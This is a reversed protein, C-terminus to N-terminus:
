GQGSGDAEPSQGKGSRGLDGRVNRMMHDREASSLQAQGAIKSANRDEEMRAQILGKAQKAMDEGQREHAQFDSRMATAENNTQAITVKM